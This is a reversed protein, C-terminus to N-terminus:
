RNNLITEAIAIDLPHTIKINQPDGEAIAISGGAAEVVSADDTFEQRYPRSYAEALTALRFVQPTQVARLSSRDVAETAVEGDTVRRISDTVAVAPVVGDCGGARLKDVARRVVGPIVLPRAGDHVAVVTDSAFRGVAEVVANRVSEWRSAGGLVTTIHQLGYERSIEDWLGLMPESVVVITHSGPSAVALAEVTHVIVPKGALLCYQKPLSAGFRSGSGAAVTINLVGAAM